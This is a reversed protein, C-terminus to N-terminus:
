VPAEDEGSSRRTEAKPGFQRWLDCAAELIAEPGEEKAMARRLSRPTSPMSRKVIDIRERDASILLAPVKPLLADIYRAIEVGTLHELSFDLIAVDFKGLSALGGLDVLSDFSELELGAAEACRSMIASFTPDDEILVLRPERM